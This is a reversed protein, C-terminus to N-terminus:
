GRGLSRSRVSLIVYDDVHSSDRPVIPTCGGGGEQPGTDARPIVEESAARKV